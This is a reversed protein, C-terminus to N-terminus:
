QAHDGAMEAVAGRERAMRPPTLTSVVMPKVGRSPSIIPVRQPADIRADENVQHPVQTLVIGHLDPGRGSYPIRVAHAHGADGPSMRSIRAAMARPSLSRAVPKRYRSAGDTGSIPAMSALKATQVQDEGRSYALVAGFDAGFDTFGEGEQPSLSSAALFSRDGM